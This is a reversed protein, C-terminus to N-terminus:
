KQNFISDYYEPLVPVLYKSQSYKRKIATPRSPNFNNLNTKQYTDNGKDVYIANGSIKAPYYMTSSKSYYVCGPTASKINCQVFQNDGYILTNGTLQTKLFADSVTYFQSQDLTNQKNNTRICNPYLGTSNIPCQRKSNNTKINFSNFGPCGQRFLQACDPISIGCYQRSSIIECNVSTNKIYIAPKPKQFNITVPNSTSTYTQNNEGFCKVWEVKSLGACSKKEGQYTATAANTSLSAFGLLISSLILLSSLIYKFMSVKTDCL